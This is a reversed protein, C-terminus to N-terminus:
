AYHSRGGHVFHLQESVSLTAEVVEAPMAQQEAEEEAEGEEGEAPEAGAAANHAPEGVVRAVVPRPEFLRAPPPPM